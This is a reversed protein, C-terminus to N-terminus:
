RFLRSFVGGKRVDTYTISDIKGSVSLATGEVDLRQVRLEHGQIHLAGVSTRCCVSEEDFREVTTVGTLELCQRDQLIMHHPVSLTATKDNREM